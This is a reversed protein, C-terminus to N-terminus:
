FFYNNYIEEPIKKTLFPCIIMDPNYNSIKNKINEIYNENIFYEIHIVHDLKKLEVYVKQSLSNFSTIIFLIKMYNLNKKM